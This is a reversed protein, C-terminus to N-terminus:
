LQEYCQRSPACEFHDVIKGDPGLGKFTRLCWVATDNCTEEAPDNASIIYLGKWRLNSCRNRSAKPNMGPIEM